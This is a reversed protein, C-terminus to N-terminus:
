ERPAAVRVYDVGIHGARTCTLTLTAADGDAVGGTFERLHVLASHSLDIEHGEGGDVSVRCSGGGPRKTLCVVVGHAGAGGVPVDLSVVDGERAAFAVQSGGSWLTGSETELRGSTVALSEAEHVVSNGAGGAPLVNWAPPDHLVLMSPNIQPHDDRAGPRTYCYGIRGYSIGKTPTHTQLEMIFEISKTFPLADIMHWRHNAVYGRNGPGDNRPQGIYAAQFLEPSSWSYGFYDESGTGFTSPFAEGDIYIKEDGEGWWGGGPTPIPTPNMLMLSTGVWVGSGHAILYPWDYGDPRGEVGHDIRWKARLHMSSENWEYPGRVVQGSATVTQPGYNKLRMTAWHGFPMVLRCHMTGDAEVVFPLSVLPCVGPASGFFDGIPSEIQPTPSGDFFVQLVVQRLADRTNPASVRVTLTNIAGPGEENFVDGEGDPGITVDFPTVSESQVPLNMTNSLREGVENAIAQYKALEDDSFTDVETGEAYQRFNLQYYFGNWDGDHTVICGDQYPIPFYLNGARGAPPRVAFPEPFGEVKGDVLDLMSAELVPADSGDVYVRLKGEEGVWPNASWFRVLAGPGDIDALVHETRGGITEDRLYNKRDTTNTNDGNAFWGPADPAVSRRDYSSFQVCKYHPDPYYTISNLDIMERLLRGTTVKSM